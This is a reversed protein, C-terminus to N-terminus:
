ADGDAGCHECYARGEGMYREDDGGYATGTYAWVHGGPDTCPRDSGDDDAELLAAGCDACDGRGTDRHQCRRRNDQHFAVAAKLERDAQDEISTIHLRTM